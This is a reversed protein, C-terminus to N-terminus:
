FCPIVSSLNSTFLRGTIKVWLLEVGDSEHEGTFADLMLLEKADRERPMEVSYCLDATVSLDAGSNEVFRGVARNM